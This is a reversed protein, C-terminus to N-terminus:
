GSLLKIVAREVSPAAAARNIWEPDIEADASTSDLALHLRAVAREITQGERLGEIIGPHVYSARCVAPTNGLNESVAVVARRIARNM